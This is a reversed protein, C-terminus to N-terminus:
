GQGKSTSKLLRLCLRIMRVVVYIAFCALLLILFIGEFFGIGKLTHEGPRLAEYYIALVGYGLYLVLLLYIVVSAYALKRQDVLFILVAPVFVGWYSGVPASGTVQYNIYINEAALVLALM